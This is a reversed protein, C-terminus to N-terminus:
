LYPILLSLQIFIAFLSPALSPHSPSFSPLLLLLFLSLSLSFFYLPCHLLSFPPSSFSLSLVSILSEIFLLILYNPNSYYNFHLEENIREIELIKKNENFNERKCLDRIEVTDYSQFEESFGKLKNIKTKEDEEYILKRLEEMIIEPFKKGPFSLSDMGFILSFFCFFFLPPIKLLNLEQSFFNFFFYVNKASILYKRLPILAPIQFLPPNENNEDIQIKRSKISIGLFNQDEIQPNNSYLIHGAASLLLSSRFYNKKVKEKRKQAFYIPQNKFFSNKEQMKNLKEDNKVPEKTLTHFEDIWEELKNPISKLWIICDLLKGMESYQSLLSYKTSLHVVKQNLLEKSELTKDQLYRIYKNNEQVKSVIQSYSQISNFLPHYSVELVKSLIHEIKDLKQEMDTIKYLKDEEDETALIQFVKQLVNMDNNQFEAPIERILEEIVQEEQKSINM